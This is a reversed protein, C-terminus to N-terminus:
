LFETVNGATCIGAQSQLFVPLAKVKDPGLKYALEHAAIYRFNKGTGFSLWLEDVVDQM